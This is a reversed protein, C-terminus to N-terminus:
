YDLKLARVRELLDGKLYFKGKIDYPIKSNTLFLTIKLQNILLDFYEELDNETYHKLFPRAIGAAKAGLALSKAIDLGTRIGGSGIKNDGVLLLSLATPIGWEEFGPVANKNRAYEVRAWSTGGSGAVDFWKIGIEKLKKYTEKSIGAGVEKIIIPVPSIDFLRAINEYINSFDLNGEKQVIEQLPNIHVALADIEQFNFLEELKEDSYERIQIAGINGILFVDPAVDRIYYTEKLYPKELRARESGLGFGIGKENAFSALKKNIEKAKKFGGTMAEIIIPANLVKNMFNIKLNIDYFDFTPLQQKLVVDEFLTTKRYQNKDKLTELIHEEKRKEIMNEGLFYFQPILWLEIIIGM